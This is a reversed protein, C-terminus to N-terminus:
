HLGDRSLLHGVQLPIGGLGLDVELLPVLLLDDPSQIILELGFVLLLSRLSEVTRNSLHRAFDESSKGM